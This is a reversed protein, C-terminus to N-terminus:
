LKPLGVKQQPKKKRRSDSLRASSFSFFSRGHPTHRLAETAM